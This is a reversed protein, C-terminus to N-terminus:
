THANEEEERYIYIPKSMMRKKPLCYNRHDDYDSDSQAECVLASGACRVMSTVIM